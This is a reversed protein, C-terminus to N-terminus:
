LPSHPIFYKILMRDLSMEPFSEPSDPWVKYGYSYLQTIFNPSLLSAVNLLRGSSSVKVRTQDIVADIFMMAAEEPSTLKAAKFEKTPAVMDTKVLPFKISSFLINKHAFEAAMSDMLTDLAVKSAMYPGFRPTASITGMSSSHLIHGGGQKEMGPILGLILRASGFYNLKMTRELDHFRGASKSISRRISRGANSFLIDVSEFGEQVDRILADCDEDNSLDCSYVHVKGGQTDLLNIEEQCQKLKELDRAVLIVEAGLQYIIKASEYGIGSSGGTILVRKRQFAQKALGARNKEPDLNKNYFDWFHEVYDCFKPLLINQRSLISLTNNAEFKLEPMLADFISEPLDFAKLVQSFLLKLAQLDRAMKFQKKGLFKTLRDVPFSLGVSPGEASKLILAFMESLDPTNPDSLHFCYQGNPLESEPLMSLYVLSKAVYDVPVTDISVKTRPLLLPVKSPLWRKLVSVLLCLYYPGNIKDIYGTESHGVIASPRYIRVSFAQKEKVERVVKESLFKSLHYPHSHQQGEDFMFEDFHGSYDGAVAISSIFHFVGNFEDNILRNLLGKTGEVNVSMLQSQDCALDYIAALHYVHDYHSLDLDDSLALQEKNLDFTSLQILADPYKAQWLTILDLLILSKENRVLLNISHGQALLSEVLYRGVFGTAGTILCRSM